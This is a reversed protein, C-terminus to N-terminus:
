ICLLFLAKTVQKRRLGAERLYRESGGRPWGPHVLFMVNRCYFLHKNIQTDAPFLGLVCGIVHFVCLVFFICLLLFPFVYFHANRKLIRREATRPHRRRTSVNGISVM